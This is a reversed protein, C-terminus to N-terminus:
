QQGVDRDFVAYQGIVSVQDNVLGMVQLVADGLLEAELGVLSGQLPGQGIEALLAAHPAVGAEEVRHMDTTPTGDRLPCQGVYLVSDGSAM